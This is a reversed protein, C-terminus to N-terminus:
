GPIWWSQMQGSDPINNIDGGSPGQKGWSIQLGAHYCDSIMDWGWSRNKTLAIYQSLWHHSFFLSCPGFLSIMSSKVQYNLFIDFFEPLSSLIFLIICWIFFIANIHKEQIIRKPYWKHKFHVLNGNSFKITYAFRYYFWKKMEIGAWGGSTGFRTYLSRKDVFSHKCSSYFNGRSNCTKIEPASLFGKTAERKLLFGWSSSHFLFEDKKSYYSWIGKM